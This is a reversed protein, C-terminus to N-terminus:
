VLPFGGSANIHVRKAVFKARELKSYLPILWFFAFAALAFCALWAKYGM